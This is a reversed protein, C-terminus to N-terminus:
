KRGMGVVLGKTADEVFEEGYGLEKLTWKFTNAVRAKGYVGLRHTDRFERAKTSLNDLARALKRESKKDLEHEAMELTYRASLERALDSSFADIVENSVRKSFGFM